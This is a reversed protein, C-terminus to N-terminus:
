KQPFSLLSQQSHIITIDFIDVTYMTTYLERCHVSSDVTSNRLYRISANDHAQAQGFNNMVMLMKMMKLQYAEAKEEVIISDKLLNRNHDIPNVKSYFREMLLNGSQGPIM